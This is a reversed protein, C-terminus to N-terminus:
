AEAGPLEVRGPSSRQVVGSLLDAVLKVLVQPSFPKTLFESAGFAKAQEAQGEGMGTLVLVPLSATRPEARLQRLVELGSQDPLGIDLIVLNPRETALATLAEAAGGAGTVAYGADRLFVCLMKLVAAEDEVVLIRRPSPAKLIPLRVVFRAGKGLGGSEAWVRGGHLEVLARVLALGIGAGGHPRTPSSDVQEFGRFIRELDQSAVGIGTDEVAIEIGESQFANPPEATRRDPPEATRRNPPEPVTSSDFQRVSKATVTIRGGEPSFKVANGVLNTLIQILKRREVVLRLTPDVEATLTLQKQEARISYLDLVERIVPALRLDELQLRQAAVETQSLELLDSVLDLLHKGGTHVRDVFQRQKPNLPGGTERKLLDTFGLVFNLPTRLEHSMRALFEAKVRLAEELDATRERVRTELDAAQRQVAAHLRANEIAVATQSAFSALYTIEAPSYERPETTNFSLVGLIDGQRSKIPLGLYTVIGLARDQDAFLNRPDTTTDACFLPEGTPAVQGSLGDGIPFETGLPTATGRAVSVTFIQRSENSLLVKVHPTSSITAAEAVIRELTTQLDLGAMVSRTAHLLSELEATRRVSAGHLRANEIAIAAHTALSQFLSVEPDSFDHPERTFISLIGHIADGAVLPFLIASVLREREAWAKNMLLPDRLLDRSVVPKRSEAALGALGEGRRFRVTGGHTDQLGISALLEVTEHDEQLDWVRAAAQPMLEQVAAMVERGVAEADKSAVLSQTLRTLTALQRARETTANHLRANEIAISAHPAFLNLLELDAEAFLPDSEDRTISLAGVLREGYLLPTAMVATHTSGELLEPSAYGSTRFDNVILGRRQAAATGAVGEGLRLPVAASHRESGTWAEPVLVQQREDWLRISGSAAGVLAVARQVILDLVARLDLERVIEESISRIAELHRTRAALAEEVQWREAIERQAAEYLRANEIAIGAHNAFSSLYALEEPPYTRPTKAEFTLVGLVEGRARIPLGLYTVFGLGRDREAFLNRPDSPSDASFLPEGTEAVLGSLDAGLPIQFGEPIANGVQAALRLIRMPRDVLLVTVHPTGAIQAAETVICHLTEQLDLGSMVSRTARLLAEMQDGRRVATEYLRANQIALAAQQAFAGLFAVEEPAYTRAAPTNFVLVGFIRDQVKVPLGLYSVVGYKDVHGPYHTRPDERTDAVALPEGTIAVQGSLSAGVPITLDREVDLPFGVGLKCRLLQDGEELLFLRVIPAGSIAAAQQVIAQLRETMDLSAEISRSAGLLAEMENARRVAAEHLRANEIAIAAHLALLSLLRKDQETFPPAADYRDVTVVGLLRNHYQLPETLSATIETRLLFLPHAHPSNRYDNVILGERRGAVTGAVGEGLRWRLSGFWDEHGHWAAPLLAQEAENWLIVAGTGAHLLEICRQNMIRLLSSLDLERSLEATVARVMDLQQSREQEQRFLRANEIATAAQAAFLRLSEQEDPAFSQAGAERTLAIVGVLQDHYLLPEAIVSTYTTRALHVPTAYPSNRFDNVILGQRKQAVTGAVGEGLRLVMQSLWEEVDHGAVPVLVQRAADWLRTIGQSDGILEVARKTILTLLESLDLERTIEAAVTGVAELRRTQEALAAETQKRGTIDALLATSKAGGDPTKRGRGPAGKRSKM